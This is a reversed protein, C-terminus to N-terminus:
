CAWSTPGGGMSLDSSGTIQTIRATPFSVGASPYAVRGEFTHGSADGPWLGILGGLTWIALPALAVVMIQVARRRQQSPEPARWRPRHADSYVM